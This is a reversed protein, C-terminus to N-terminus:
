THRVPKVVHGAARQNCVLQIIISATIYPMIGMALISFNFLAGGGFTNLIGFVSMQDQAKLVETNVHPVPIFSGLRFVILMLLTFIIKNRIDKVRM